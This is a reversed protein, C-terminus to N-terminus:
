QENEDGRQKAWVKNYSTMPMITIAQQNKETSPILIRPISVTIPDEMNYAVYNGLHKVKFVIIASSGIKASKGFCMLMKNLTKNKFLDGKILSLMSVPEQILYIDVTDQLIPICSRFLLVPDEDPRNAMMAEFDRMVRYASRGCIAKALSSLMERNQFQERQERVAVQMKSFPVAM